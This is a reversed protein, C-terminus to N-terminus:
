GKSKAKEHSKGVPSDLFGGKTLAKRARKGNDKLWVTKSTATVPTLAMEVPRGDQYNDEDAYYELAKLM